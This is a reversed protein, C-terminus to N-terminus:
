IHTDLFKKTQVLKDIIIDVVDNDPDNMHELWHNPINQLLFTYKRRDKYSIDFDLILEEFLNHGPFPSNLLDSITRVNKAYWNEYYLFQKSKSHICTSRNISGCHNVFGLIM